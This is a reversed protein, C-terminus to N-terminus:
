PRHSQRRMPQAKCGLLRVPQARAEQLRMPQIKTNRAKMPQPGYEEQMRMPRTEPWMRGMRSGMPQGQVRRKRVPRAAGCCSGMPRSRRETRQGPCKMPPDQAGARRMPCVEPLESDMPSSRQLREPGAPRQGSRQRGMPQVKKKWKRGTWDRKEPPPRHSLSPPAQESPVRARSEAGRGEGASPVGTGLAAGAGVQRGRAGGVQTM